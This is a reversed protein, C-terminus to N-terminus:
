DNGRDCQDIKEVGRWRMCAGILDDIEGVVRRCQMEVNDVRPGFTFVGAPTIREEVLPEFDHFRGALDRPASRETPEPDPVRRRPATMLTVLSRATSTTRTPSM